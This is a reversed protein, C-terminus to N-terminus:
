EWYTGGLNGRVRVVGCSRAAESYARRRARAEAIKLEHRECEPCRNEGDRGGIEIGCRACVKM